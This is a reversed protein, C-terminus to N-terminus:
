RTGRLAPPGRRGFGPRVQSSVDDIVRVKEDGHMETYALRSHDDLGSHLYDFGMGRIPLLM